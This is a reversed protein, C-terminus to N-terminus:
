GYQDSCTRPSTSRTARAHVRLCSAALVDLHDVTSSRSVVQAHPVGKRHQAQQWRAISVLVDPDEGQPVLDRHQCPLETPLLHPESRSIPREQRCQQVLKRAGHQALQLKQYARVRDQAPVAIQEWAAM